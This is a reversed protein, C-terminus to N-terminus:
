FKLSFDNYYFEIVEISKRELNEKLVRIKEEKFSPKNTDFTSFVVKKCEFAEVLKEFKQTNFDDWNNNVKCEGLCILSDLIATIDVEIKDENGVIKFEPSFLFYNQSLSHLKFLTFLPLLGDNKIYQFLAENLKYVVVLEFSNRVPINKSSIKQKSNCRKCIFSENKEIENLYYFTTNSCYRCKLLYGRQLINRNTLNDLISPIDYNNKGLVNFIAKYMNSFDEATFFSRNEEVRGKTGIIKNKILEENLNFQKCLFKIKKYCRNKSFYFILIYCEPSIFFKKLELFNGDFLNNLICNLYYGKDSLELFINESKGAFNENFENKNKEFIKKFIEFNTFYSIEQSLRITTHFGNQSTKIFPFEDKLLYKFLSDPLIYDDVTYTFIPKLQDRLYKELSFNWPIIIKRDKVLSYFDFYDSYLARFSLEEIKLEKAQLKKAVKEDHPYIYKKSDKLFILMNEIKRKYSQIQFLEDNILFVNGLNVRFLNYFLLFADIGNGLIIINKFPFTSITKRTSPLTYTKTNFLTTYFPFDGFLEGLNYYVDDEFGEFFDFIFDIPLAEKIEIGYLQNLREQSFKGITSYILLDLTEIKSTNWNFLYFGYKKIRQSLVWSNIYIGFNKFFNKIRVDNPIYYTKLCSLSNQKLFSQFAGNYLQFWYDFNKWKLDEYLLYIDADYKKLIELFIDDIHMKNGNYSYPVILDYMGGWIESYLEIIKLVANKWYPINKDIFTVVKPPRLILKTPILDKNLYM